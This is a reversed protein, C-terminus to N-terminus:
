DDAECEDRSPACLEGNNYADLWCYLYEGCDWACSSGRVNSGLPYSEMWVHAQYVISDICCSCNGIAINLEAAVLAQFLTYTKDGATPAKMFEIAEERTYLEGGIYIADVPWAEPHNMWYGPTGTGPSCCCCATAAGGSILTVLVVFLGAAGALKIGRGQNM